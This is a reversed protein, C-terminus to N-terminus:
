GPASPCSSYAPLRWCSVHPQDELSVVILVRRFLHQQRQERSLARDIFAPVATRNRQRNGPSLGPKGRRCHQVPRPFAAAGCGPSLGRLQVSLGQVVVPHPLPNQLQREIPRTSRRQASFRGPPGHGPHPRDLDWGFRHRMPGSLRFRLGDQPLNVPDRRRPPPQGHVTGLGHAMKRAPGM